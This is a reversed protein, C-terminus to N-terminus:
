DVVKIQDIAVVQGDINRATSNFATVFNNMATPTDLAVVLSDAGQVYDDPDRAPITIHFKRGAAGYSVFLKNGRLVTEAPLVATDQEDRCSVEMGVLTADSLQNIAAMLVGVDTLARASADAAAFWAKADTENVYVSTSCPRKVGDVWSVTAVYSTIIAM